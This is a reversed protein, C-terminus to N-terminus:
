YMGWAGIAVDGLRLDQTVHFQKRRATHLSNPSHLPEVHCSHRGEGREQRFWLVVVM